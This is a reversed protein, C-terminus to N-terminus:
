STSTSLIKVKDGVKIKQQDKILELWDPQYNFDVGKLRIPYGGDFGVSRITFTKGVYGLMDTEFSDKEYYGPKIDRVKVKDGIKFKTM